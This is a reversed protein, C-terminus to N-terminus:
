EFVVSSESKNKNQAGLPQFHKLSRLTLVIIETYLDLFM